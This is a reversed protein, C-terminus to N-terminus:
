VTKGPKVSVSPKGCRPTRGPQAPRSTISGSATASCITRATSRSRPSLKTGRQYRSAATTWASAGPRKARAAADPLTGCFRAQARGGAVHGSPGHRPTLGKSTDRAAERELRQPTLGGSMDRVARQGLRQPTLGGSMERVAEWGLRRPTLGESM